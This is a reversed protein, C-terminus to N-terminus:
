EAPRVDFWVAKGPPPQRPTVGWNSAVADVILLGRGSSQEPPPPTASVVPLRDSTDTVAVGIGPPELCLQLTIEGAGHQFANTVIESVLLEANAVIDPELHDRNDRVFRRAIAAAELTPTLQLVADTPAVPSSRASDDVFHTNGLALFGAFRSPYAGRQYRRPATM